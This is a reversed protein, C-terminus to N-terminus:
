EQPGHSLLAPILSSVLTQANVNASIFGLLESRDSDRILITGRGFHLTRLPGDSLILMESGDEPGAMDRILRCLLGGAKAGSRKVVVSHRVSLAIELDNSEVCIQSPGDGQTFVYPTAVFRRLLDPHWRPENTM